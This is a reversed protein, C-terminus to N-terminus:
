LRWGKYLPHNTTIPMSQTQNTRNAQYIATILEMSHRADALNPPSAQPEGILSKYIDAMLGTFREDVKTLKALEADIIKQHTEDRATFTWDGAGITYPQLGSEITVHEFCVRIRSMDGVNGLTISSTVLAGSGMQMSIAACDETEIPNVRVDLFASVNKVNGLMQTALDHIHTAHSVITGGNEGAWTGRWDIAYYPARRDWHTELSGAFAKGLLNKEKLMKYRQFGVGYRYQFIPFVKKGVSAAKAIVQDTEELSSVFPKECAVHKGADLAKMIIPFHLHPPLCIDVLDINPDALVEDIDSIIKCNPLDKAIAKAREIDLDCITTVDFADPWACYGELHAAGIGAGLIAVNYKTENSM